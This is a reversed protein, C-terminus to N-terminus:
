EHNGDALEHNDIASEDDITSEHEGIALEENVNASEHNYM